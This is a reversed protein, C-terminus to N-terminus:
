FFVMTNCPIGNKTLNGDDVHYDIKQNLVFVFNCDQTVDPGEEQNEVKELTIDFDVLMSNDPNTSIEFSAVRKQPEKKRDINVYKLSARRLIFFPKGDADIIKHGEFNGYVQGLSKFSDDDKIENHLLQYINSKELHLYTFIQTNIEKINEPPKPMQHEMKITTKSHNIISLTKAFNLQYNNGPKTITPSLSVRLLKKVEQINSDPRIAKISSVLAAVFPAALSTGSSKGFRNPMATSNVSEGPAWVTVKKGWNSHHWHVYDRNMAGVNIVNSLRQPFDWRCDRKFNGAAFVPIVNITELHNIADKITYSERIPNRKLTWSNNIVQAGYMASLYLAETIRQVTTIEKIKGPFVKFSIIESSPAVGFVEDTNKAGLIGCVKTGHAKSKDDTVDWKDCNNDHTLNVGHCNPNNPDQWLSQRLHQHKTDVGSDIVSIIQGREIDSLEKYNIHKLPYGDNKDDNDNGDENDDAIHEIDYDGEIYDVFPILIEELSELLNPLSSGKKFDLVMVDELYDPYAMNEKNLNPYQELDLLPRPPGILGLKELFELIEEKKFLNGVDFGKKFRIIVSQTENNRM